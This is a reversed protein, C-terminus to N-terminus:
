RSNKREEVGGTLGKDSEGAVMNKFRNKIFRDDHYFTFVKGQSGQCNGRGWFVMPVM